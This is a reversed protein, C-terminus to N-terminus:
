VPPPIINMVAGRNVCVRNGGALAHSAGRALGRASRLSGHEGLKRKVESSKEGNPHLVQGTTDSSDKRLGLFM